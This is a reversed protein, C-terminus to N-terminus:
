NMRTPKACFKRRLLFVPHYLISYLSPDAFAILWFLWGPLLSATSPLTVAAIFVFIQPVLPVTSVHQKSGQRRLRYSSIVCAWNLAASCTGLALFVLSPIISLHM